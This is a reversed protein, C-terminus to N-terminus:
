YNLPSMSTHRLRFIRIQDQTFRYSIRYGLIEFARYSGDNNTKYKDPPYREPRSLLGDIKKLIEKEFKESNIPSDKEIYKVAKAFQSVASKKWRITAEM